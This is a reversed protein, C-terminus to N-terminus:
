LMVSITSSANFSLSDGTSPDVVRVVRYESPTTLSLSRTFVGDVVPIHVPINELFVVLSSVGKTTTGSIVFETSAAVFAPVTLAVQYPDLASLLLNPDKLNEWTKDGIYEAVVWM